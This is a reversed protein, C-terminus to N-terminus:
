GSQLKRTTTLERWNFYLDPLLLYCCTLFLLTLAFADDSMNFFAPIPNLIRSFIFNLTFIYSRIMWQRHIQIQRNRATFFAALTCLLWFTATVGNAFFLSPRADHQLILATPASVAISIVYVRGIIRHRKLHQQRFRTSFLFPGLITALVGTIVHPVLLVVDKILKTRYASPQYLLPLDTFILVSIGALGLAAWLLPKSIDRSAGSRPLTTSM